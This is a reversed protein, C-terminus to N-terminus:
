TLSVEWKNGVAQTGLKYLHSLVERVICIYCYISGEPSIFVSMIVVETTNCYFCLCGYLFVKDVECGPM